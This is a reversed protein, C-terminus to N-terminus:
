TSGAGNQGCKKDHGTEKAKTTVGESVCSGSAM